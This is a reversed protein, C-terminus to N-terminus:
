TKERSNSLVLVFYIPKLYFINEREARVPRLAVLCEAVIHQLRQTDGTQLFVQLLHKLWASCCSALICRQREKRM